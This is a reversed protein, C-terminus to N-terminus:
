SFTGMQHRQRQRETIDRMIRIACWAAGIGAFLALVDVATLWAATELTPQQGVIRSYRETLRGGTCYVLFFAWWWGFFVSPPADRRWGSSTMPDSAQWVERVLQYPRFLSMIPVFWWGIAWGPSWRADSIGLAPLNARARYLGWFALRPGGIIHGSGTMKDGDSGTAAKPGARDITCVCTALRFILGQKVLIRGLL